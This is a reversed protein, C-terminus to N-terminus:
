KLYRWIIYRLKDKIGSIKSIPTREKAVKDCYAEYKWNMGLWKPQDLFENLCEELGQYMDKYKYVGSVSEIKSSDFVRDYLRDYIIQWKNWVQMLEYSNDVYKVKPRKGIRKEIVNLYIELIDIWRANQGNVINFTEGFAKDIGILEIMVASVDAGYTLSTNKEAIDKPLVITKGELARKLWNEKEYVGLQLRNSNYTIYPRIITWNNKGSNRLLNEEQAKALAYEDTALYNHDSCVDLLRPSKETIPVISDAYVRSSSFFFYQKTHSLFVPVRKELEETRYVMFDVIIDYNRSMLSNFFEANLADGQIYCLNDENTHKGRTTIYISHGEKKLLNVLPLGMAGTGGLILIEM